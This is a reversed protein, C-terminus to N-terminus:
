LPQWPRVSSGHTLAGFLAVVVGSTRRDLRQETRVVAAVTTM